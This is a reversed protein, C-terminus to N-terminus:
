PPEFGGAGVEPLSEFQEDANQPNKPEDGNDLMAVGWSLDRVREMAKERDLKRLYVQTTAISRHGMLERLAEVDGTHHELYFVAFAARLAHVHAQLGVRAAVRRVLRWIVRDDRQERNRWLYGEPPVLYDDAEAIVGAAIAAELLSRLEHPVPKWIVKAGKEHFRLRGHLRDFDRLRLEAVARRRAGTYCLIALTLQESWGEAARLMRMVDESSVTVVELDLAPIRRTRSIRDMPNHAIQRDLYLWKLFSSLISEAHAQTGRARGSYTDLWRRCDDTTIRSVDYDPPLLDCFKNLQYRYTKITRESCGRRTLDNLFLDIARGVPLMVRIIVEPARNELHVITESRARETDIKQSQSHNM